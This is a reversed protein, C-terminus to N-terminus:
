IKENEKRGGVAVGSEVEKSENKSVRRKEKMMMTMGLRRTEMAAERRM